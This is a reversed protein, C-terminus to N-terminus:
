SPFPEGTDRSPEPDAWKSKSNDRELPRRANPAPFNQKRM